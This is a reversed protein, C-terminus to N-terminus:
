FPRDENLDFGGRVSTGDPLFFTWQIKGFSFGIQEVSGLPEAKPDNQNPLGSRVLTILVDQLVVTFFVEDGGNRSCKRVWDIQVTPIRTGSASAVFLKPTARDVAKIITLPSFQPKGPRGPISPGDLLPVSLSQDSGFAEITGGAGDGPIGPITVLLRIEQRGDEKGRKQAYGATAGLLPLLGAFIILPLQAVRKKNVM